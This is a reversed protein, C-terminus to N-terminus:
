QFSISMMLFLKNIIHMAMTLRVPHRLSNSSVDKTGFSATSVHDSADLDTLLSAHENSIVRAM